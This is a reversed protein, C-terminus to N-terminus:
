KMLYAFLDRLDADSMGGLLGEPMLSVPSAELTEIDPQKVLHKQGAIDRIVVGGADQKDILGTFIQGDKVKCIYAGFGERIEASPALIAVLWFDSNTREYGTLEPGVHGGENFLTHCVSCRQTFTIKGKEPDGKSNALLTKIRNMEAIMQANNMKASAPPWHKKVIEDMAADHYQGIQRVVDPAVNKEKIHHLEVEGLFIRAWERRSVLMRHTADRVGPDGALKAEYAAVATKAIKEDDFRSAEALAAKKLAINGTSTFIAEIVPTVKKDGTQAVAELLSVRKLLPAKKDGVVALAKAVADASGSKVATALDSDMQSKFYANVPGSLAPPLEPMKGGEFASAIGEIVLTQDEPRKALALLKACSDYNEKGGAM